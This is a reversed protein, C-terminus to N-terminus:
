IAATQKTFYMEPRTKTSGFNTNFYLSLNSRIKIKGNYFKLVYELTNSINIFYVKM